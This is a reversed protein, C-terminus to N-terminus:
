LYQVLSTLDDAYRYMSENGIKIQDVQEQKTSMTNKPPGFITPEQPIERRPKRIITMSTSEQLNTNGVQSQARAGAGPGIDKVLGPKQEPRQKPTKGEPAMGKARSKAGAVQANSPVPRSRGGAGAAPTRQPRRGAVISTTM